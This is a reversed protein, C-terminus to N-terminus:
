TVGLVFVVRTWFSDYLRFYSPALIFPSDFTAGLVLFALRPLMRVRTTTKWSWLIDLSCSSELYRLDVSKCQETNNSAEINPNKLLPRAWRGKYVWNATHLLLLSSLFHRALALWREYNLFHNRSESQQIYVKTRNNVIHIIRPM